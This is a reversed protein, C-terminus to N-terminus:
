APVKVEQIAEPNLCLQTKYQIPDTQCIHAGWQTCNKVALRHQGIVVSGSSMDVSAYLLLCDGKTHTPEGTAWPLYLAQVGTSQWFYDVLTSTEGLKNGATWIELVYPAVQPLWENIAKMEAQNKISLLGANLTRCHRDSQFWNKWSDDLLLCKDAVLTFNAPCASFTEESAAQYLQSFALTALAFCLLKSSIM